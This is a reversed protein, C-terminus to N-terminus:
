WCMITYVQITQHTNLTPVVAVRTQRFHRYYGVLDEKFMNTQKALQVDISSPIRKKSENISRLFLIPYHIENFRVNKPPETPVQDEFMENRIKRFETLRKYIEESRLQKNVDKNCKDPHTYYCKETKTTGLFRSIYNCYVDGCACTRNPNRHTQMEKHRSKGTTVKELIELVKAGTRSANNWTCPTKKLFVDCHRTFKLKMGCCRGNVYFTVFSNGPKLSTGTDNQHCFLLQLVYTKVYVMVNIFSYISSNNLM